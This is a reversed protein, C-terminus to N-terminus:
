LFVGAACRPASVAIGIAKEGKTLDVDNGFARHLGPVPPRKNRNNFACAAPDRVPLSLRQRKFAIASNQGASVCGQKGFDDAVKGSDRWDALSLAGASTAAPM